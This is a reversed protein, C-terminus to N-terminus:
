GRHESPHLPGQSAAQQFPVALIPFGAQPRDEPERRTAGPFVKLEARCEGSFRKSVTSAGHGQPARSPAADCSM